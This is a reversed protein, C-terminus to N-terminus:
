LRAFILFVIIKRQSGHNKDSQVARLEEIQSTLYEYREQKTQYKRDRGQKDYLSEIKKQVQNRELTTVNLLEKANTYKSKVESNLGKQATSIEVELQALEKKYTVSTEQVQKVAEEIKKINLELKAHHTVAATKDEELAAIYIENRLKIRREHLLIFKMEKVLM